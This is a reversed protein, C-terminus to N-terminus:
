SVSNKNVKGFQSTESVKCPSKDIVIFSDGGTLVSVAKKNKKSGSRESMEIDNVIEFSDSCKRKLDNRDVQSDFDEGDKFEGIIEIDFLNDKIFNEVSECENEAFLIREGSKTNKIYWHYAETQDIVEKLEQFIISTSLEDTVIEAVEYNDREYKIFIPVNM